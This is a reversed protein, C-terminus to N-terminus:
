YAGKKRIAAPITALLLYIDLWLTWNRIYYMDMRVREDYSVDSRGSVQWLGTIGPRVTLLNIGWKGYEAMEPPSIMRPGVLSMQGAIVNFFQPIEDLSYKRLFTGIRTIRPDDKLKYETSLKEKLEPHDELIKDGNTYMTRFKYADFQTGNVGMVRRRYIVPGPSDLKILIALALYVPSLLVIMILSFGYDMLWKLYADFGSIRSKNLEILPVFALEKIRMGTNLLEFLGSSLRVNIDPNSGFVRFVNLLQERNLATPAIIIEQIGSTEVFQDLDDLSGLVRYGHSVPTGAPLGNDIFGVLFLGSTPWHRLQDVLAHGEENAGIIIAPALMLGRKRLAYVVRRFSFRALIVIFVSLLWGIALWGRSLMIDERRLFALIIIAIVGTSVANFARAYERLGGFLIHQDYLQYVAFIILWAPIMGIMLYSYVRFEFEATYPLLVFRLFYAALYALGIAIIDIAILIAVTLRERQKRTLVTAPKQLTNETAIM